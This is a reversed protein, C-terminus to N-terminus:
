FEATLDLDERVNALHAILKHVAMVRRASGPNAPDDACLPGAPAQAVDTATGSAEPTAALDTATDTM